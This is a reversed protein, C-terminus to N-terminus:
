DCHLLQQHCVQSNWLCRPIAPSTGGSEGLTRRLKQNVQHDEPSKDDHQNRASKLLNQLVSTTTLSEAERIVKEKYFTPWKELLKAATQPGFLLSFDQAIDKAVASQLPEEDCKVRKPQRSMDSDSSFVPLSSVSYLPQSTSPPSSQYPGDDHRDKVVFCIGEVTSLEAFVTEDAETGSDDEVTIKDGPISFKERVLHKLFSNMLILLKYNRAPKM